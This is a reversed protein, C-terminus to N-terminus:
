QKPKTELEMAEGRGSCAPCKSFSTHSQKLYRAEEVVTGYGMKSFSVVQPTLQESTYSTATTLGSGGCSTCKRLTYRPQAARISDLRPNRVQTIRGAVVDAFGGTARSHYTGTLPEWNPGFAGTFVTGDAAYTFTGRLPQNAAFEAKVANGSAFIIRGAGDFAYDKFQGEYRNGAKTQLVGYGNVCDGQQCGAVKEKGVAPNGMALPTAANAQLVGNYYTAVTAVGKKYLQGAGHEKGRRWEGVYKDGGGYDMTGRGEPQGNLFSGEYTAYGLDQRGTGNQCDGSLCQAAAPPAAAALLLAAGFHRGARRWPGPAPRHSTGYFM